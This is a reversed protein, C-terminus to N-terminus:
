AVLVVAVDDNHGHDNENDNDDNNKHTTDNITGFLMSRDHRAAPDFSLHVSCM